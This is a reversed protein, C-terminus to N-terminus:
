GSLEYIFLIGEEEIKQNRLKYVFDHSDKRQSFNKRIQKSYKKMIQSPDNSNNGVFM